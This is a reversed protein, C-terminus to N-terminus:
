KIKIKYEKSLLELEEPYEKINWQGKVKATAIYPYILSNYHGGVKNGVQTTYLGIAGMDKLYSSNKYEDFISGVKSNEFMKILINKKWITIQTSFYYDSEIDIYDLEENYSKTKNGVGSKILRIFDINSNQSLLKIYEQIKFENVHEFLIYDEQSYIVYDTSISKLASIMQNSYSDSDNYIICNPHDININCTVVNNQLGPFYKKIRAFYPEHLEICKSHTYTLLTLNNM